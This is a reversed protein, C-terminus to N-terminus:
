VPDRGARHIAYRCFRAPRAARVHHGPVGAAHRGAPRPAAGRLDPRARLLGSTTATSTTPSSAGPGPPRPAAFADLIATNGGGISYVADICPDEADLADCSRGRAHRRRPRRDRDGRRGPAAPALERLAARFGIEREEEGRFSSSSLTVLVAGPDAASGSPSWTRRPRAPRGTTSASTPSARPQAAPRHGPHRGPHGARGAAGGGRRGRPHRAGQAHRGHTGRRRSATWRRRGPRGADGEERLHFRARICRRACRRCSPRWRARPGRGLVPGPGADGPRGPVHPGALRVQDRQRDLDAIPRSRGRGVTSARVGARGHLVRDVTAESLGAQQPSRASGTRTACRTM